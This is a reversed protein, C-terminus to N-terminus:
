APPRAASSTRRSGSSSTARPSTQLNAIPGYKVAYHGAASMGNGASDKILYYLCKTEPFCYYNMSKPGAYVHDFDNSDVLSVGKEDTLKWSTEKPADDYKIDIVVAREGANCSLYERTSDDVTAAPNFNVALGM